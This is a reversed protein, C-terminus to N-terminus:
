ALDELDRNVRFLEKNALSLARNSGDLKETKGRLDRNLGFLDNMAKALGANSVQLQRGRVVIRFAQLGIIGVFVVVMGTIAGPTIPM